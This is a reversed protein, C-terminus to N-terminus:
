AGGLKFCQKFRSVALDADDCRKILNDAPRNYEDIWLQMAILDADSTGPQESIYQPEAIDAICELEGTLPELLISTSTDEIIKATFTYSEGQQTQLTIDIINSM